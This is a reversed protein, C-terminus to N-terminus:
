TADREVYRCSLFNHLDQYAQRKYYKYATATADAAIVDVKFHCVQQLVTKFFQRVAALACMAREHHLHCVCCRPRPLGSRTVLRRKKIDQICNATPVFTDGITSLDSGEVALAVSELTDFLSEATRERSDTTVGTKNEM